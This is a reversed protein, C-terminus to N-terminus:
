HPLYVCIVCWCRGYGGEEMGVEEMGVKEMGVRKWGVEEM